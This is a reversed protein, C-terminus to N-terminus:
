HFGGLSRERRARRRDDPSCLLGSDDVLSANAGRVLCKTGNQLPMLRTGKIPLPLMGQPSWRRVVAIFMTEGNGGVGPCSLACHQSLSLVTRSRECPPEQAPCLLLPVIRACRREHHLMASRLEPASPLETGDSTTTEHREDKVM